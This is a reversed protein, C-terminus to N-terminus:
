FPYGIGLNFNLKQGFRTEYAADQPEFIWRQGVPLSPDKTRLALDFRVLFFDFNLRAGVGTGVAIESLFTAGNFRSGPRTPVDQQFWINGVDTFLAGELYGFVKFRYELDGEIKVEGIRDFNNAPSSYSGPGLTRARWARMGNAGGSFFSTEFPMVPQNGFPKAYGVAARMALTSREHLNLYHRYDIDVKAYQAYRIGSIARFREGTEQVAVTKSLVSVPLVGFLTTGALEGIVRLFHDHRRKKGTAQTNLTYVGRMGLIMHDSYSDSLVADNTSALFDIFAQSREPIRILNVEALYLGVTEKITPSWEMGISAKALTRTYDPRRQYNFLTNAVLRSGTGKPFLGALPRPFSVKLEPGFELTNFLADKALATSSTEAGTSASLQQQAEVGLTVSAQLLALSRALNKHRYNFNLSAGLFGGRNTGNVETSFGQRKSPILRIRCDAYGRSGMGLTDYSIDVRDFVRLNTLRRFTKDADSQNFREQPRLIVAGLLSKPKYRPREGHYLFTYGDLRVTDPQVQANTSSRETADVFVDNLYFVRGEPKGRLGREGAQMPRELSIRLDVEHDGASTDADFLVMDRTFYLYGLYKLLDTIRTREADLGDADFRDGPKLVCQDWAETLYARITPDDVHLDVVCYTWPRGPTVTYEIAAKPKAYPKGSWGGFPWSPRDFHLSDSVEAEFYGEKFAYLAFQERTRATLNSDLIVPPEGNRGRATHDCTRLKRGKRERARNEEVCISDKRARKRAVREPDRLNYLDLYLTRGLVRKNPKQKVISLLEEPDLTGEPIIISNKVLLREGPPVWRTSNCGSLGVVVTAISLLLLSKRAPRLLREIKRRWRRRSLFAGSSIRM